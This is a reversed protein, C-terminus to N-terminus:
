LRLEPRLDLVNLLAARHLGPGSCFLRMVGIPSSAASLSFKPARETPLLTEPVRAVIVASIVAYAGASIAFPLRFGGVQTLWGGAAPLLVDSSMWMLSLRNYM